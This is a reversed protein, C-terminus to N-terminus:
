PSEEIRVHGSSDETIALSVPSGKEKFFQFRRLYTQFRARFFRERDALHQRLAIGSEARADTDLEGALALTVYSEELRKPDVFLVSWRFELAQDKLTPVVAVELSERVVDLFLRSVEGVYLRGALNYVGKDAKVFGNPQLALTSPNLTSLTARPFFLRIPIPWDVPLLAKHLFDVRLQRAEPSNLSQEADHLFPIRVKKWSDPVFFSVEDEDEGRLANLQESSIQTLDFDLELGEEQLRKVEDEPGSITQYLKQPWVDLFQYGEPAEDQPLQVFVPIKRTVLPCLRIILEPYSIQQIASLLHVDPNLNVINNKSIKAVWEDGKDSADLVIEFDQLNLHEIIDKNGIITLTMRKDLIGDPMLGRITKNPPLNVIRIPVRVFNRSTTVSSNVVTWILTAALMSFLKRQWNKTFLNIIFTEMSGVM